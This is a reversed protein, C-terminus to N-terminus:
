PLYREDYDIGYENLMKKFEEKYDVKKHHEQQNKVYNVIRGRETKSYSFVGYGSAWGCFDPFQGSEKMWRSSYSKLDRVFDAVAITPNVECVIHLHDEMGNIRYLHCKKKQLIGWIYGYLAARTAEPIVKGHNLTGFVFHYTLSRYSDM